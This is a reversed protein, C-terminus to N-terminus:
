LGVKALVNNMDDGEEWSDVEVQAELRLGTERKLLQAVSNRVKDAFLRAGAADTEPLVVLFENESWRAAYDVTRVCAALEIGLEEIIKSIGSNEADYGSGTLRLSMVSLKTGYRECRALERLLEKYLHTRTALGTNPDTDKVEQLLTAYGFVESNRESM